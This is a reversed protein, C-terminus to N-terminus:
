LSLISVKLEGMKGQIINAPVLARSLAPRGISATVLLNRRTGKRLATEEYSGQARQRVEQLGGVGSRGGTSERQRDCGM